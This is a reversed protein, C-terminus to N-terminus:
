SRGMGGRHIMHIALGSLEVLKSFSISGSRDLHSIIAGDAPGFLDAVGCAEEHSRITLSGKKAELLALGKMYGIARETDPVALFGSARVLNRRTEDAIGHCKNCLPDLSEAPYDWKKKGAEYYRHHVNIRVNDAGCSACTGDTRDLVRARIRQWKTEKAM